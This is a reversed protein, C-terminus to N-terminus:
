GYRRAEPMQHAGDIVCELRAIIEDAKVRAEAPLTDRVRQLDQIVRLLNRPDLTECGACLVADHTPGHM